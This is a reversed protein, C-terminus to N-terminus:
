DLTVEKKDLGSEWKINILLMSWESILTVALIIKNSRSWSRTSSLVYSEYPHSSCDSSCGTALQLGSHTQPPALRNLSLSEEQSICLTPHLHATPKTDTIEGKEPEKRCNQSHTNKKGVDSSQTPADWCCPCIKRNTVHDVDQYCCVYRHWLSTDRKSCLIKWTSSLETKIWNNSVCQNSWYNEVVCVSKSSGCM